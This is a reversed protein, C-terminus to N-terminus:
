CPAISMTYGDWYSVDENQTQVVQSSLSFPQAERIPMSLCPLGVIEIHLVSMEDSPIVRFLGNPFWHGNFHFPTQM